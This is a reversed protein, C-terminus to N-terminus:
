PQIIDMLVSRCTQFSTILRIEVWPVHQRLQRIATHGPLVGTSSVIVVRYWWAAELGKRKAVVGELEKMVEPTLMCNFFTITKLSPCM